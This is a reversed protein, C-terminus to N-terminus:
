TNGLKMQLMKIRRKLWAKNNKSGFARLGINKELYVIFAKILINTDIINETRVHKLICNIMRSWEALVYRDVKKLGRLEIGSNDEMLNLIDQIMTKEEVQFNETDAQTAENELM